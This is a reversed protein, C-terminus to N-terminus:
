ATTKKHLYIGKAKNDYVFADHYLRFQFKWADKEQNVDPDFIKPLAFKKVQLIAERYIIMFNIQTAGEAPAFGWQDASGDKLTIGTYFRSPNVYVIPLGNYGALRTNVTSDSGWQRTLATNLIPQLDSNIYLVRGEEPVEDANLQRVAEDIADLIDAKTLVAAATTNIGTAGAYKAFRFADLEPAVHDRVFSNVLNGFVMGLTEEDDMRDISLEKGREETLQLTEWSATVDGKPYGDERSYDGLGTTGIKLVKVENTGSFDARTAADMGETISQKKYVEDIIPLFKKPYELTNAM